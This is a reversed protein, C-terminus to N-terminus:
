LSQMKPLIPRIRFDWHKVLSYPKPIETFYASNSFGSKQGLLIAIPKSKESSYLSKSIPKRQEDFAVLKSPARKQDVNFVLGDKSYM